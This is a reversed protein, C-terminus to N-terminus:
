NGSAVVAANATGILANVDRLTQTAEQRVTADAATTQLRTLAPVLPAFQRTVTASATVTTGSTPPTAKPKYTSAALQILRLAEYAISAELTGAIASGLYRLNELRSYAKIYNRSQIKLPSADAQMANAAELLLFSRLSPASGLALVAFEHMKQRSDSLMQSVVEHFIDSDISHQQEAEILRMTREYNPERLIFTLWEDLTEPNEKLPTNVGIVTRSISSGGGYSGSAGSVDSSKDKSSSDSDPSTTPNQGAEAIDPTAAKKKKKKKKKADEAAKKKLDDANIAVPAALNPLGPNAAAVVAPTATLAANTSLGALRGRLLRSRAREAQERSKETRRGTSVMSDGDDLDSMGFLRPHWNSDGAAHTSKLAEISLGLAIATILGIWIMRSPIHM